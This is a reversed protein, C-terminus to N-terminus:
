KLGELFAAISDLEDPELKILPMNV